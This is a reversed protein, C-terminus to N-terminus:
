CELDITDMDVFVFEFCFSRFAVIITTRIIVANM